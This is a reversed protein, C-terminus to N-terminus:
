SIYKSRIFSSIVVIALFYYWNLSSTLITLVALTGSVWFNLCFQCIFVKYPNAIVAIRKTEFNIYARAFINGLFSFIMTDDIAYDLETIHENDENISNIATIEPSGIVKHFFVTFCAAVIAPQLVLLIVTIINFLENTM